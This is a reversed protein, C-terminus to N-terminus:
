PNYVEAYLETEYPPFVFNNTDSGELWKIEDEKRLVVPMRQRTNHITAMLPNARTTILTFTHVIEGSTPEVWEAYLGAISFIPQYKSRIIYAQKKNNGIHKWEYFATAPILCPKHLSYKFSAKQDISEIRANLTYKRINKDKAWHPILGWQYLEIADNKVVPLKPFRFGNIFDEGEFNETALSRQYRNELDQAQVSLQYYFCM